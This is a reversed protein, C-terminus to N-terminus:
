RDKPHVYAMGLTNFIDEESGCQILEVDRFVGHQSLKLGQDKAHARQRINFGGSGTAYLLTPGFCGPKARYLEIRLPCDEMQWIFGAVSNDKKLRIPELGATLFTLVVSAYAEDAVVMDLDHVSACHRRFSGAMEWSKGRDPILAEIRDVVPVVQDFPIAVGQSM